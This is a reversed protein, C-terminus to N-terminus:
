KGQIVAAFPVGEECSDAGRDPVIPNASTGLLSAHNRSDISQAGAARMKEMRRRQGSRQRQEQARQKGVM